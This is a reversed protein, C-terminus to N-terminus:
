ERPQPITQRRVPTSPKTNPRTIVHAWNGTEDYPEALTEVIENVSDPSYVFQRIIPGVLVIVGSVATVASIIATQQAETVNVNFAVLLGIIETILGTIASVIVAPERKILPTNHTNSAGTSENPIPM